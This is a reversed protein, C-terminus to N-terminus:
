LEGGTPRTPQAPTKAGTGGDAKKEQNVLWIIADGGQTKLVVPAVHAADDTSVSQVAVEQRGYGVPPHPRLAVGLVIAIAAAAVAFGTALQWKQHAFMEAASIRMREWFPAKEPTIKALVESSFKSFDVDDALLELGVRVLGAEARFDAVRATCDKCDALHHEVAQRESPRLEGDVFASLQPVVSQCAPPLAM